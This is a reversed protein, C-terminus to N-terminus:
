HNCDKADHPCHSQKLRTTHTPSGAQRQGHLDGSEADNRKPGDVKLLELKDHQIFPTHSDLEVLIFIMQIGKQLWRENSIARKKWNWENKM